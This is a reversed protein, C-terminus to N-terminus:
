FIKGRVFRTLEPPYAVYKLGFHSKFESFGVWDKPAQPHWFHTFLHVTIGRRLSESYWHDILGTMAYTKRAEVTIFPCERVSASHAPFYFVATGAVVAGTQTDRVGWLTCHERALPIDFKRVLANLLDLGIKKRTLSKKYAAIFDDLSLEEVRYRLGLYKKQWTRLNRQADTSWSETYQPTIDAFGDIRWPGQKSEKWGKPVDTRAIRRWILLRNRALAGKTSQALNPENDSYYREFCLPWLAWRVGQPEVGVLECKCLAPPYASDGFEPWAEPPAVNDPPTTVLTGFPFEM